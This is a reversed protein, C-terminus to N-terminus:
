FNLLNIEFPFDDLLKKYNIEAPSWNNKTAVLEDFNFGEYLKISKMGFKNISEYFDIYKFDWIDSFARIEEIDHNIFEVWICPIKYAESVILGHLSESLVLSSNNIADIIDTWNHYKTTRVVRCGKDEVLQKLIPNNDRTHGHPIILISNKDNSIKPVYFLPLLLAPDGYNEPCDIGHKLLTERTKPGRVSIIKKPKGKFPKTNMIGSGYIITNNLNKGGLISGIMLYHEFRRMFPAFDPIFVIKQKSIKGIFYYNIDDGWNRHEISYNKIYM